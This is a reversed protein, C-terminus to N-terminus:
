LHVSLRLDRRLLGVSANAVFKWPKPASWKIDTPPPPPPHLFIHFYITELKAWFLYITKSRAPFLYITESFAVFFYITKGWFFNTLLGLWKFIEDFIASKGM